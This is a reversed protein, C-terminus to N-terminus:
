FFFVLRARSIATNLRKPCFIFKLSKERGRTRVASIIIVLKEAGQFAEVTGVQIGKMRNFNEKLRIVQAHYPSIVGIDEERVKNNLLKRVFSSIKFVFRDSESFYSKECFIQNMM